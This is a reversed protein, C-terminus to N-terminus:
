TVGEGDFHPFYGRSYWNDSTEKSLVVRGKFSKKVEPVGVELPVCAEPTSKDPGKDQLVSGLLDIL